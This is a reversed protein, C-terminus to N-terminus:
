ALRPTDQRTLKRSMWDIANDGRLKLTRLVSMLVQQTDAGRRTRNGGWVKRNVVASRLAHEGRWNTADTDRQRLYTFLQGAHRYCFAALRENAPDRKRHACLRRARETLRTAHVRASRPSREGADRQDRLLLGRRLLAKVHGPFAARGPTAAAEIMEGCRGMLHTTCQQHTARLYRDYPQWGDHVLTGAFDDGILQDTAGAGRAADILYACADPTAAAHLWGGVGGVRWGTEDCTVHGAAKVKRVIAEYDARCRRGLSQIAHNVGGATVRLGWLTGFLDAVKGLSLGLAKNLFAMASRALPGVQSACCGTAASTQLPHTGRRRKGCGACRVVRVNFRRVVTRVEIDRQVQQDTSEVVPSSRDGCGPCADPPPVDIVRDTPSPEPVARFAPPTGYGDGSKRGPKKPDAKPPGKSFPASQRKGGRRLQEVLAELAAIRAELEAIRRDREVCGPCTPNVPVDAEM